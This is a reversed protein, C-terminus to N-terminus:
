QNTPTMPLCAVPANTVADPTLLRNAIGFLDSLRDQGTSSLMKFWGYGLGGFTLITLISGVITECGTRIRTFFLLLIVISIMVISLMAQTTRASVGNDISKRDDDTADAPYAEPVRKLLEIANFLMYSLLFSMMSMWITFVQFSEKSSSSTTPFAIILDCIESRNGTFMPRLLDLIPLSTLFELLINGLSALLPVAGIFGFLVFLIAYNATMLGLILFTGALALPLNMFGATLFMKIDSAWTMLSTM